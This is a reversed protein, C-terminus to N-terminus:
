PHLSFRGPITPPETGQSPPTAGPCSPCIPGTPLRLSAERRSAPLPHGTSTIPFTLRQSLKVREGVRGWRPPSPIRAGRVGEVKSLAPESGRGSQAPFPQWGAAPEGRELRGWRPPSPLSARARLAGPQSLIALLVPAATRSPGARLGGRGWAGRAPESCPYRRAEAPEPRRM